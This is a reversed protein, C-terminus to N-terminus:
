KSADGVLEVIRTYVGLTTANVVFGRALTPGLGRYAWKYGHQAHLQRRVMYWRNNSLPASPPTSQTVSCSFTGSTMPPCSMLHATPAACLAPGFDSSMAWCRSQSDMDCAQAQGVIQALGARNNQERLASLGFSTVYELSLSLLDERSNM